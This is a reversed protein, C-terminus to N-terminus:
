NSQIIKLIRELETDIGQAYDEVKKEVLIDPQVGGDFPIIGGTDVQMGIAPIDLEVRTNPLKLFFIFSGNTGKQNGGTAQGVITVNPIKKAYMAMLHTASSNSADTVLYTKGKFRDKRPKYTRSPVVYKSKLFFRGGEESRIKSSFDYPFREWTKM